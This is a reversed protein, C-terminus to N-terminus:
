PTEKGAAKARRRWASYVLAFLLAAGMCFVGLFMSFGMSVQAALGLALPMLVAGLKNGLMLVSTSVASRGPADSAAVSILMPICHGSLLGALAAAVTMALPNHLLIGAASVAGGALLGWSILKMPDAKLRPLIFRNLTTCAWFLAVTLAGQEARGFEVTMYRAVWGSMGFQGASYLFFCGLLLLHPGNQLYRLLGGQNQAAAPPPPAAPKAKRWVLLYLAAVLFLPVSVILYVNRWGTFLLAQIIFPTVIAGFGYLGHVMGVYKASDDKHLELMGASANVDILGGGVGLVFFAGLLLAFGTSLGVTLMMVAQLVAGLALMALTGFRRSALPILLVCLLGGIQLLSAPLGQRASTLAFEDILPTILISLATNGFAFGAQVLLISATLSKKNPM